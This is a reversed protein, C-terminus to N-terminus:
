RGPSQLARLKDVTDEPNWPRRRVVLYGDKELAAPNDALAAPLSPLEAAKDTGGWGVWTNRERKAQYLAADASSLSHEWDLLEPHGPIFPVPAFGISCSTRTAVADGVRFIQKAVSSRVREALASATALDANVCLVVFEDGGWRVILDAARFVRRLIDAIQVLVADGGAHGYQDNIPKLHDLDVIMLVCNLASTGEAADAQAALLATMRDHLCRRNSLGTLSDSVSAHRLRQNALEMDRGREALEATRLEVETKLRRAYAAERQVRRHQGLWVLYLSAFLATGYLTRAWWSAWPPPSVRVGLSLPTDTWRGDSNAARV